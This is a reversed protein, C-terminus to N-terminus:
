HFRAGVGERLRLFCSRAVVFCVNQLLRTKMEVSQSINVRGISQGWSKCRSDSPKCLVVPKCSTNKGREGLRPRRSSSVAAWCMMRCPMSVPRSPDGVPRCPIPVSVSNGSSVVWVLRGAPEVRWPCGLHQAPAFEGQLNLFVRRGGEGRM